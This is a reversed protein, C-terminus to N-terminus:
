QCRKTENKGNEDETNVVNVKWRRNTEGSELVICGKLVSEGPYDRERRREAHTQSVDSVYAVRVRGRQM